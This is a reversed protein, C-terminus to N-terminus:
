LSWWMWQVTDASSTAKFFMTCTHLHTKVQSLQRVDIGFHLVRRTETDTFQTLLHIFHHMNGTYIQRSKKGETSQCQQNPSLFPMPGTFFPHQNASSSKVPAKCSKYSWYDLQMVVVEIMRQKLLCWSVWTEGPFHGIFSLSLNAHNLILRLVTTLATFRIWVRSYGTHTAPLLADPWLQQKGTSLKANSISMPMIWNTIVCGHTTKHLIIHINNINTIVTVKLKQQVPRNKWLDSCALGPGRFTEWLLGM